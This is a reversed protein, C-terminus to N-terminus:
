NESNQGSIDQIIDEELELALSSIDKSGDKKSKSRTIPGSIEPKKQQAHIRESRRPQTVQM